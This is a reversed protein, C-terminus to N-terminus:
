VTAYLKTGDPSAIVDKTWHHNRGAPLDVIKESPATIEADGDRYPFAVVADANAVYLKGDLLTMGFPSFLSSLLVTRTEAVGDGNEDRLLSIRNASRVEAGARSQFLKMFWGRISFGEDPKPPANSEAVLVDGNPLVHLWRPHDLGGAFENVAFGKAAVPMKGQPWPTAEAVHVTPIWTPNPEALTPNPGYTQEIPVTAQERSFFFLGAGAIIVFAVIVLLVGLIKRM